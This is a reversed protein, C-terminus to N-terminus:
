SKVNSLIKALATVEALEPVAALSELANYVAGETSSDLFNPKGVSQAEAPGFTTLLDVLFRKADSKMCQAIEEAKKRLGLLEQDEEIANSNDDDSDDDEAEDDSGGRPRCCLRWHVNKLLDKYSDTSISKIEGLIAVMFPLVRHGRAILLRALEIHGHAVADVLNPAAFTAEPSAGADLLMEASEFSDREIALQLLTRYETWDAQGCSVNINLCCNLGVTSPLKEQVLDMSERIFRHLWSPSGPDTSDQEINGCDLTMSTINNAKKLWDLSIAKLRAHPVLLERLNESVGTLTNLEEATANGLQLKRLKQLQSLCSLDSTDVNLALVELNPCSRCIAELLADGAKPERPWRSSSVSLFKLKMGSEKLGSLLFDEVSGEDGYCSEVFTFSRLKPSRLLRPIYSDLNQCSKKIHILNLRLSTANPFSFDRQMIDPDHQTTFEYYPLYNSWNKQWFKNLVRLRLTSRFLYTMVPSCRDSPSASCTVFSFIDFAISYEQFLM